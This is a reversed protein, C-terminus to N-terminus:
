TGVGLSLIALRFAINSSHLFKQTHICRYSNAEDEGKRSNLKHVRLKNILNGRNEVNMGSM